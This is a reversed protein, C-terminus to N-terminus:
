VPVLNYFDLYMLTPCNLFFHLTFDTGVGCYRELRGKNLDSVTGDATITVIAADFIGGDYAGSSTSATRTGMNPNTSQFKFATYNPFSVSLGANTAQHTLATGAQTLGRGNFMAYSDQSATGPTSVSYGKSITNLQSNYRQASISVESPGLWNYHWHMSGKQALFCNSLLTYPMLSTLSIPYTTAVTILGKATDWGNPDFGPAPPFRTQFLRYYGRQTTNTPPVIVDVLNQRRLLQRFSRTVEGFHVRSREVLIEGGNTGMSTQQGEKTEAYEDSQIAFPSETPQLVRPNALEFNDAARVFVQMNVTSTAVPASLLTLVKVSLIGNDFTDSYPVTPSSSTSYPSVLSVASDYTYCWALAQQYPIRVDVETEAGLDVVKNFVTPGTDATTQVATGYPDYSIRVRGKHFPSAIFRFTFIIDGRWSSFMRSALGIPTYQSMGGTGTGRLWMCPTVKSTFLPTDVVTATSWPVSVLYSQRTVFSEISLEDQPPLGVITPDISLENKSDLTLKEVPYGIEPSALQPFALPRFPMAPEIVPVNTFGFLKAIGSVARAGMETATAFKGIIPVGKVMGAIKAVTSAPGSVPGTGYEDAQMALGVTPGALVVDEAWAYVQVTAGTGTVGNASALANYIIFRLTGMDTYDSAVQARLFSRPYFFPLVMDAGESHQPKLWVGPQQSYPILESNSQGGATGAIITSTKFAPLPQYSARMSGYYFPSANLVFKLHLNARMFAFNNLKYKINANNFYLNWPSITSLVGVPDSINWTFNAIRVPRKFFDDLGATTVADATDFPNEIASSGVDVGSSVDLFSTTQTDTTSLDPMTADIVVEDSQITCKWSPCCNDCEAVNSYWYTATQGCNHCTIRASSSGMECDQTTTKQTKQNALLYLICSNM